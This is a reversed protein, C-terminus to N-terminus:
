CATQENVAGRPGTFSTGVEVSEGTDFQTERSNAGNDVGMEAMDESLAVM